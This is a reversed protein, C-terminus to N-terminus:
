KGGGTTSSLVIVTDKETLGGTVEMYDQDTLGTRILTATVKGGRRVFVIYRAASQDPAAFDGAAADV